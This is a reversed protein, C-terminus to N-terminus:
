AASYIGAACEGTYGAPLANDDCGIILTDQLKAESNLTELDESSYAESEPDRAFGYDPEDTGDTFTLFEM